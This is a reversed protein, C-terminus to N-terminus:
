ARRFVCDIELLSTPDNRMVNVTSIQAPLFGAERMFALAQEMNWVDDYIHVIPLELQVGQVDNLLNKGGRLINEEFGQTDIKLFTSVGLIEPLYDDLTKVSVTVQRIVKSRSDFEIAKVNPHRISSFVSSESINLELEGAVNGLAFPEVMWLRDKSVRQQLRIFEEPNPEFSIIKGRYGQRRIDMGFQGCNAGVDIVLQIKRNTLFDNLSRKQRLELGVPFLLMRNIILDMLVRFKDTM